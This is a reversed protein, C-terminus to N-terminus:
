DCLGDSIIAVGLSGTVYISTPIDSRGSNGSTESMIDRIIHRTASASARLIRNGLAM